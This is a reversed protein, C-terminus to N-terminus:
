AVIARTVEAQEALVEGIATQTDTIESVAAGIGALSRVVDAVLAQITAVRHRVDTTARATEDALDKVEKAVVAFGRGSEGARAAEIAANLSLLNTQAAIRRIVDVVDGIEASYEGLRAVEVNAAETLEQGSAAVATAATINTSVKEISTVLDRGAAHLREAADIRELAQGVLIAISRLADARGPSLTLRTTVFFDMTGVVVGHVLIPLCVGSRVGALHAVPARVCDTVEALDAVFVLDRARWARGALGVGEQFTASQTVARFEEGVDGSEEAFRLVTGGDEITWCSGYAWGFDRRITDLARRLALSRTSATSVERVVDGVAALDQSDRQQRESVVARELAQSVLTGISRLTQMRVESVTVEDTAFFDMTGTVEGDQILPLCVGGRVGARRAAPARVCDTLDGLDPVVVVDRAKWARGSLGVGERFTASQTITLFEEGVVGSEDSFVLEPRDAAIRWHSGYAWGFQERVADLVRRVAERSTGSSALADVVALVAAANERAERLDGALDPTTGRNGFGFM